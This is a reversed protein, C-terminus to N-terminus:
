ARAGTGSQVDAESPDDVPKGYNGAYYGYGYRGRKVKVGNAVFGLVPADMRRLQESLHAAHDRMTQGMRAVAIVGDAERMLPFADAVVGVPATDIVVFDYRETLQALVNKLADSEILEAPNPPHGGAVIIDLSPSTGGPGKAQPAFPRSQIADDLAVQHTLVGTLGPGVALGHQQALSSNRLDTEILIVKASTSAIRALNWAITSKGAEAGYSTILVSRIQRDVNFYQLSSRLMRFSEQEVFPLEPAAGRQNTSMIAKSDPITGLVPFQFVERAEEPDRLRRNLRELLVTVFIGLLLGLVAGLIANRVPKPSSPSTPLTAPQVLEANGTQLSALVGLKEAASSLEKGRVGGRDEPGLRHFQDEALRKASLLRAKEATARFAIFQHAFETAVTQAQQPEHSTATISVLEAEGESSVEVMDAVEKGSLGGVKKATRDAVVRLGVLKENTAAEREPRPSVPTPTTSFLDEAFGSNRFLLTATASYQKQQLESLGFAIAGTALFCFLILLARRRLVLLIRWLSDSQSIGENRPPMSRPEETSIRPNSMGAM